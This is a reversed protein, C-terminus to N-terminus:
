TLTTGQWLRLRIPERNFTARNLSFVHPGSTVAGVLLGNAYFKVELIDGDWDSANASLSVTAPVTNFVTEPAPTLLRIAPPENVTVNVPSSVTTLGSNDTSVATLLHKGAPPATWTFGYQNNGTSTGTGILIGDDYFNVGSISGGSISASATVIINAPPNFNSRNGPTIISVTAGSNVAINIPESARGKGLGDVAVAILRHNGGAPNNWNFNYQSGGAPVGLGLLSGNEYFEVRDITGDSDSATANITLNVPGTLLSGDVPSTISIIPAENGDPMVTVEDVFSNNTATPDPEFSKILAVNSLILGGPPFPTQGELPTVEITVTATSSSALTDIACFVASDEKRCTGTTPTVSVFKAERPLMNKLMVEHATQPGNNTVTVTYTLNTGASLTAPSHTINVSVDASDTNPPPPSFTAIVFVGLGDVKASIKKNAFDPPPIQPAVLTRDVLRLKEADFSDPEVHLIRLSDFTSQDTVSPVSFTVVHPGSVSADTVIDYADDDVVTYGAPLPGVTAPDIVSYTADGDTYLDAFTVSEPLDTQSGLPVITNLQGPLAPAPQGPPLAETIPKTMWPFSPNFFGGKTPSFTDSQQHGTSWYWFSVDLPKNDLTRVLDTGSHLENEEQQSNQAPPVFLVLGIDVDQNSGVPILPKGEGFGSIHAGWRWHFHVCEPCGPSLFHPITAPEDVFDHFTLHFNDWTGFDKGNEIVRNMMSIGVPNWKDYFMYGGLVPICGGFFFPSNNCDRFLGVSNGVAGNNQFHFRQAFRISQLQAGSGPRYNYQIIPKWRACPVTASPECDDGPVPKYFEYRQTVLVCDQSSDLIQDVLYRAEIVRKTDNTLVNYYVLRTHMLADGGNPKLRGKLPSPMTSTQVTFSPVSLREAM